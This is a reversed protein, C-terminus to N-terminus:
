VGSMLRKILGSIMASLEDVEKNIDEVDKSKLLTLNKAIEFGASVEYASRKAIYLFRVFELNSSAGSGEAINLNVSVAARRIQNTLGYKEDGPLEKTVRYCDTVFDMSRKWITLKRFNHIVM